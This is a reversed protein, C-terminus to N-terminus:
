QILLIAYKNGGHEYSYPPMFYFIKPSQHFEMGTTFGVFECSGLLHSEQASPLTRILSSIPRPTGLKYSIKERFFPSKKIFVKDFLLLSIVLFSATVPIIDATDATKIISLKLIGIIGDNIFISKESSGASIVANLMPGTHPTATQRILFTKFREKYVSRNV